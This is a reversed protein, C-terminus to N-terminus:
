KFMSCNGNRLTVIVTREKLTETTNGSGPINALDKFDLIAAM